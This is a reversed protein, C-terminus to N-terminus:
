VTAQAYKRTRQTTWSVMNKQAVLSAPSLDLAFTVSFYSVKEWWSFDHNERRQAFHLFWLYRHFLEYDLFPVSPLSVPQKVMLSSNLVLSAPDAINFPSSHESSGCRSSWVSCVRPHHWRLFYYKLSRGAQQNCVPNWHASFPRLLLHSFALLVPISPQPPSVSIFHPLYNM